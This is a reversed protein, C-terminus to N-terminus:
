IFDRKERGAGPLRFAPASSPYWHSDKDGSLFAPKAVENSTKAIFSDSYNRGLDTQKIETSIVVDGLHIDKPDKGLTCPAGGCIGVVLALIINRFTTRITSAVTSTNAKGLGPMYTLVVNHKGIRGTTYANHDGNTKCWLNVSTEHIKDFIGIIAKSEIGLACIIAIQYDERDPTAEM